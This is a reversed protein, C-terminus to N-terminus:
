NYAPTRPRRHRTTAFYKRKLTTRCSRQVPRMSWRYSIRNGGETGDLSRAIELRHRALTFIDVSCIFDLGLSCYFDTMWRLRGCGSHSQYDYPAVRVVAIPLPKTMIAWWVHGAKLHPFSVIILNAYRVHESLRCVRAKLPNIMEAQIDFQWGWTSLKSLPYFFLQLRQTLKQHQFHM